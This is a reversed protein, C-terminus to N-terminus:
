GRRPWRPRSAAGTRVTSANSRQRRVTTPRSSAHRLLRSFRRAIVFFLPLVTLSVLALEWQLYFLAGAFFLIRLVYSVGDAVGSLVFSEISAVDGTLRSVLDGLRRREFFDLSLGQLHRFLSTRLSLVFREGIWTSGYEDVFGVVAGLLSLAVFALALWVFPAFDRPVLVEDVLVKFLWIEATQIAPLAAVGVLLVYLWRRYPRAYPWFRRFIERVPVVPAPAVLAEGAAVPAFLRTVRTRLM